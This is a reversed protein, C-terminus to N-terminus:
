ACTDLTLTSLTLARHQVQGNSIPVKYVQSDCQRTRMCGSVPVDQRPPAKSFSYTYTANRPQTHVKNCRPYEHSVANQLKIATAALSRSFLVIVVSRAWSTELRVGVALSGRTALVCSQIAAGQGYERPHPETAIGCREPLDQSNLACSDLSLMCHWVTTLKPYPM